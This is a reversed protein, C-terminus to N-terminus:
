VLGVIGRMNSEVTLTSPPPHPTSVGLFRINSSVEVLFHIKKEGYIESVHSGRSRRSPTVDEESAGVRGLSGSTVLTDPLCRKRLQTLEM